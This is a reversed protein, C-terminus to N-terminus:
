HMDYVTPNLHSKSMAILNCTDANWYIVEYYEHGNGYQQALVTVGFYGYALRLVNGDNFTYPPNLPIDFAISFGDVSVSQTGLHQFIWLSECPDNFSHHM